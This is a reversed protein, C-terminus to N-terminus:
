KEFKHFIERRKEEDGSLVSEWGEDLSQVPLIVDSFNDDTDRSIQNYLSRWGQHLMSIKTGEQRHLLLRIYLVLIELPLSFFPSSWFDINDHYDITVLYKGDPAIAWRVPNYNVNCRAIEAHPTEDLYLQDFCTIVSGNQIAILTGPCDRITVSAQRDCLKVQCAAGEGYFLTVSRCDDILYRGQGSSLPYFNEFFDKSLKRNGSNIVVPWLETGYMLLNNSLHQYDLRFQSVCLRGDRSLRRACYDNVMSRGMIRKCERREVHYCDVTGDSWGLLWYHAGPSAVIQDIWARDAPRSPLAINELQGGADLLCLNNQDVLAITGCDFALGYRDVKAFIQSCATSGGIRITQYNKDRWSGKHTKLNKRYVKGDKTIVIYEYQLEGHSSRYSALEVGIIEGYEEWEMSSIKTFLHTPAGRTKLILHALGPPAYSLTSFWFFANPDKTLDCTLVQGVFEQRQECSEWWNKPSLSTWRTFISMPCLLNYLFFTVLILRITFM